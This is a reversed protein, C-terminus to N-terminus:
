QESAELFGALAFNSDQSATREASRVGSPPIIAPHRRALVATPRGTAAVSAPRPIADMAHSADM